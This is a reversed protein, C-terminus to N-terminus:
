SLKTLLHPLCIFAKCVGDYTATGRGLEDLIILSRKTASRIIEATESMEVMFTSRGASLEDFAGMRTLIADHLSVKASEAPVYSYLILRIPPM